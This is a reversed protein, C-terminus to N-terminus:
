RWTSGRKVVPPTRLSVSESSVSLLPMLNVGGKPPGPLRPVVKPQMEGGPLLSLSLWHVCRNKIKRGLPPDSLRPIVKPQMKGETFRSLRPVLKSLRPILPSVHPGKYVCGESFSTVLLQLWVTSGSSQANKMEPPIPTFDSFPINAPM